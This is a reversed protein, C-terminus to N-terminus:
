ACRALLVLPLNTSVQTLEVSGDLQVVAWHNVGPQVLLDPQVYPWSALIIGVGRCMTCTANQPPFLGVKHRVTGQGVVKTTHIDM